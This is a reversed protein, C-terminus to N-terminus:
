NSPIASPKRRGHILGLALGALAFQITLYVTEIAFWTTLSAIPHKAAEAIVHCTWYFLGMVLGFKLGEKVLRRGRCFSPYAYSLLLGQIVISLFGLAIIPEKRSFYGLKDYVGQFTVLHWVFALPFTILAYAAAGLVFRKASM